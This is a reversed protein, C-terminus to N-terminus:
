FLEHHSAGSKRELHTGKEWLGGDLPKVKSLCCTLSLGVCQQFCWTINQDCIYFNANMIEHIKKYFKDKIWIHQKYIYQNQLSSTMKKVKNEKAHYWCHGIYM